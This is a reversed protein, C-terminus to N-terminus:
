RVGGSIHGSRDAGRQRRSGNRGRDAGKTRFKRNPDELNAVVYSGQMDWEEKSPMLTKYTPLDFFGRIADEKKANLFDKMCASEFRYAFDIYNVIYFKERDGEILNGTSDATCIPLVVERYGYRNYVSTLRWYAMSAVSNVLHFLLTPDERSFRYKSYFKDRLNVIWDLIWPEVWWLKLACKEKQNKPDATFITQAVDVLNSTLSGSRQEDAIFKFFNTHWINALHGGLKMSYDLLDNKPNATEDNASYSQNTVMNGNEKGFETAVVVMPGACDRYKNDEDVKKGFRLMDWVLIHSLSSFSGLEKNRRRFLKNDWLVLHGHDMRLDDTRIGYNSAILNGAHFYVWYSEAYIALADALGINVSGDFFCDRRKNVDYGYLVKPKVSGKEFLRYAFAAAQQMNVIRRKGALRVIDREFPQYPFEPFMLSVRNMNDYANRHYITNVIRGFATALTTKGGRMKGLILTFVGTDSDVMAEDHPMLKGEILKRAQVVMVYRFIVYVIVGQFWMPLFSIAALLSFLGALAVDLVSLLNFSAFFYFYESVVDIAISFLRLAFAAVIVSSVFYLSKYFWKAYDVVFSILKALPRERIWYWTQLPKSTRSWLTQSEDFYSYVQLVLAVLVMGLVMIVRALVSLWDTVSLLWRQANGKTFMLRFWLVVDNWFAPLDLKSVGYFSDPFRTVESLLYDPNEPEKFFFMIFYGLKDIGVKFSVGFRYFSNPQMFILFCGIGVLIAIALLHRWTKLWLKRM